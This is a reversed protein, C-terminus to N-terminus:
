PTNAHSYGDSLFHVRGRSNHFQVIQFGQGTDDKCHVTLALQNVNQSKGYVKVANNVFDRAGPKDLDIIAPIKM